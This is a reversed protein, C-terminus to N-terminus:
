AHTHRLETQTHRPYTNTHGCASLYTGSEMENRSGPPTPTPLPPLSKESSCCHPHYSLDDNYHLICNCHPAGIISLKLFRFIYLIPYSHSSKAVKQVVASLLSKVTTVRFFSRFFSTNLQRIRNRM